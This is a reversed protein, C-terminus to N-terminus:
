QTGSHVCVGQMFSLGDGSLNNPWPISMNVIKDNVDEINTSRFPNQARRLGDSRACVCEAPSALTRSLVTVLAFFSVSRLHIREQVAHLLRGPLLLLIVSHRPM